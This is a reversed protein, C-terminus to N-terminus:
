LSAKPLAYGGDRHVRSKSYLRPRQAEMWESRASVYASRAAYREDSTLEPLHEAVYDAAHEEDYQRALAGWDNSHDNSPCRPAKSPKGTPTRGDSGTCKHGEPYLARSLSYVTHFGMDMGVGRVKLGGVLLDYRFGTVQAALWSIDRIGDPTAIHLSIVRSMGSRSVHRVNAYVTTGVPLLERLTALAEAKDRASM